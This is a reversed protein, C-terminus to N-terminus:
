FFLLTLLTLLLRAGSRTHDRIHPLRRRGRLHSRGGERRHQRWGRAGSLEARKAEAGRGGERFSDSCGLVGFRVNRARHSRYKAACCVKIQCNTVTASCPGTLCIGYGHSVHRPLSSEVEPRPFPEAVIKLNTLELEYSIGGGAM